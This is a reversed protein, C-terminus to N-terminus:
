KPVQEQESSVTVCFEGTNDSRSGVADNIRFLLWSFQEVKIDAHDGVTFVNLPALMDGGSVANPLLCALLQGLPRGRHYRYTIGAPQSIWPKPDPALAVEGAASLQLQAGPPIRVGISQWGRDALVDIKIPKGNWVPDRESLEVRETNWDFGYDLDHCMLRWRADIVPWQSRLKLYLSRNFGPSNDSGNRASAMFADRYEPYAYLLMTAAWSWCYADVKGKLDPQYQMVTQLSPIQNKDRLQGMLKFRGWFPVAERSRPIQNILLEAGVGSHTALMEATGEMFWTPGAGRFHHFALAHAGEHLLLHTTYYESKQALVWVRNGLTYGFPFDPLNAPILGDQQFRRKDGIVQAQVRWQAVAHEPLNWFEIWQPVASDFAAVLADCQAASELDTTLDIYRGQRRVLEAASCRCAFSGIWVAVLLFIWSRKM